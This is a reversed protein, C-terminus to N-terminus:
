ADLSNYMCKNVYCSQFIIAHLMYEMYQLLSSVTKDQFLWFNNSRRIGCLYKYGSWCPPGDGCRSRWWCLYPDSGCIGCSTGCFPVTARWVPYDYEELVSPDCCLINGPCDRNCQAHMYIRGETCTNDEWCCPVTPIQPFEGGGSICEKYQKACEYVPPYHRSFVVSITALLILAHCIMAM